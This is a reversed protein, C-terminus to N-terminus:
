GAECNKKRREDVNLIFWNCDRLFLLCLYETRDFYQFIIAMNTKSLQILITM